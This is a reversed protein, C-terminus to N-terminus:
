HYLLCEQPNTFFYDEKKPKGPVVLRRKPTGTKDEHGAKVAKSFENWGLIGNKYKDILDVM